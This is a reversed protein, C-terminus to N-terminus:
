YYYVLLAIATLVLAGGALLWPLWDDIAADRGAADAARPPAIAAVGIAGLALVPALYRGQFADIRPAEVANWGAYALLFLVLLTGLTVAAIVAVQLWQRDGDATPRERTAFLAAVLAGYTLLAVVVSVAASTSWAPVQAVADHFLKTWSGGLTTAITRLFYGVHHEVFQFQKSQNVHVYATGGVGAAAYPNPPPPLWVSQAYHSWWAFLAVGPLLVLPLLRGLLADRHRVVAPLFLLAFVIYPPKSLGLAVGVAGVELLARRASLGPEATALRLALAIALFAFAITLGDASVTSAQVICVPMLALIALVARWRPMREIALVIVLIYAALNAFRALWLTALVSLGAARGVRIMIAAPVYPLPAYIASSPFGVFTSRGRPAPDTLRHLACAATTGHCAPDLRPTLTDRLVDLVATRLSAPFSAGLDRAGNADVRRESRVQLNSLQWARLFHYPEDYGAFGPILFVFFSGSLLAVAVFRRSARSM